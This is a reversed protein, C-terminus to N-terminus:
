GRIRVWLCEFMDSSDNLEPYDFCEKVYLDVGSGRRSQRNRRFFRISICTVFNFIVSFCSSFPIDPLGDGSSQLVELALLPLLCVFKCLYFM